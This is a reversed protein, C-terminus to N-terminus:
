VVTVGCLIVLTFLLPDVSIIPSDFNTVLLLAPDLGSRSNMQTLQDFVSSFQPVRITSVFLPDLPDNTPTTSLAGATASQSPTSLASRPLPHPASLFTQGPQSGESGVMSPQGFALTQQLDSLTSLTSNLPQGFAPTTTSTRMSGLVSTVTDQPEMGFPSTSTNQPNTSIDSFVTVSATNTTPVPFVSQLPNAGAEFTSPSQSTHDFDSTNMPTSQFTTTTQTSNQHRLFASTGTGKM